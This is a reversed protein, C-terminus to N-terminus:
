LNPEVALQAWLPRHDSIVRTRWMEYDRKAQAGDARGLKSRHRKFAQVGSYLKLDADRLVQGFVDVTGACPEAPGLPPPRDSVFGILDYYRDGRANSPLRVADPVQVGHEVLKDLTSSERTGFQLDGLLLLDAAEGRARMRLYRGIGDLETLRRELNKRDEGGYLIHTTCVDFDWGATRFSALFPPRSLQLVPREEAGRREPPLIVHGAFGRFEVRPTYYLVAFRENNGRPGPAVDSVLYGWEPGLVALLAEFQRLDRDVEQLAV